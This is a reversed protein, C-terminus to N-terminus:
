GFHCINWTCMYARVLAEATLTRHSVAQAMSHGVLYMNGIKNELM